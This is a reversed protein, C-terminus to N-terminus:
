WHRVRGVDVHVFAPKPYYGVGGRRLEIAALRVDALRRGPVRLDIAKGQMHLSHRAVGARRRALMANTEPSRYGCIVEIPDDSDLSTRLLFLLDLLAPAIPLVKGNHHDRLVRNIEHLAPQLYRGSECYLASLREGTHLHHFRLDREPPLSPARLRSARRIAAGAVGPVLTLAAAAVAGRKLFARRTQPESASASARGLRDSTAM